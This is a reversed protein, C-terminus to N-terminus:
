RSQNFTAIEFKVLPTIGILGNIIVVISNLEMGAFVFMIFRLKYEEITLILQKYYLTSGLKGVNSFKCVFNTRIEHRIRYSFM